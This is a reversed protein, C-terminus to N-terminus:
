IFRATPVRKEPQHDAVMYRQGAPFRPRASGVFGSGKPTLVDRNLRAGHINNMFASGRYEKPWSEGQYILFGSHAHGGGASDSKGNAAHPGADGVYHRHDAITKIDDYTYPNFHPGAQREFRGGQVMHYLHPIVCSEQILQGHEDWDFGWSNSTGHAFVEFIHKKPHYRWIGANIPQRDADPTGPKGVRSHTFVGHSGYLWGDPGWAFSNLTEHTDQQGWGDLLVVPPGDPKDDGDKDPIFYLEPAAGVWVGGFGVELGSILNLKDAFVKRDDFKGDGDKDEFILIRDRGQGEPARHPYTYAEAVWLRGRDDIAFAIPQVVDPEGAFLTVKFGPPVTMAKAADEPSLGNHAYQDAVPGKPRAAIIPKEDHFRFDDFNIHGWHGTHEDVVRVFITKGKLPRLDFAVRRMEENGEGPSAEEGSAKFIVEGNDERVVEVRTEPHWGAGVLFSGYPHTVAFPRSTLKGTAPDATREYGAIWFRGQHGSKMDSRRRAVTDGEIPQGEFAKGEAKWDRLGGAEFDLNLPKGAPDVPLAGDAAWATSALLFAIPALLHRYSPKM